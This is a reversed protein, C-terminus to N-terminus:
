SPAKRGALIGHWLQIRSTAAATAAAAAFSASTVPASGPELLEDLITRAMQLSDNWCIKGAPAVHAVGPASLRALEARFAPQGAYCADWAMGARAGFLFRGQQGLSRLRVRNGKGDGVVPDGSADAPGHASVLLIDARARAAWAFQDATTVITQRAIGDQQRNARQVMCGAFECAEDHGAFAILHVVTGAPLVLPAPFAGAGYIGCVSM